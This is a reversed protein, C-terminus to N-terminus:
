GEAVKEVIDFRKKKDLLEEHFLLVMYSQPKPLRLCGGVGLWTFNRLYCGCAFCSGVMHFQSPLLRLCFVERGHSIALIAAAPLFVVGHSITTKASATQWFWLKVYFFGKRLAYRHPGLFVSVGGLSAVLWCLLLSKLM